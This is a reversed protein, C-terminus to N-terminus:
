PSTGVTWQHTTPEFRPPTRTETLQEWPFFIDKIRWNGEHRFLVIEGVGTADSSFLRVPLRTEDDDSRFEGLRYKTITIDSQMLPELAIEIAFREDPIVLENAFTRNQLSELFATLVPTAAHQTTQLRDIETDLPMTLPKNAINEYLRRMALDPPSFNRPSATSTRNRPLARAPETQDIDVESIPEAEIQQSQETVAQEQEQADATSSQIDESDRCSFLLLALLAAVSLIHYNNQRYSTTHRMIPLIASAQNRRM